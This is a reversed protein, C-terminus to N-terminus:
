KALRRQLEKSPWVIEVDVSDELGEFFRDNPYLRKQDADNFRQIRPREWTALQDVATVVISTAGTADFPDPLDVAAVTVTIPTADVGACSASIVTTGAALAPLLVSAIGAANTTGAAPDAIVADNSSSLAVTQGAMANGLADRVLVTASTTTGVELSVLPISLTVSAVSGTFPQVDGDFPLLTDSM